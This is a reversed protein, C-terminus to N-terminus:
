HTDMSPQVGIKYETLQHLRLTRSCIYYTQTQLGVVGNAAGVVPDKEDWQNHHAAEEHQVQYQTDQAPLNKRLNYM